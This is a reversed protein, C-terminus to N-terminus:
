KKHEIRVFKADEGAERITKMVYALENQSKVETRETKFKGWRRRAKWVVVADIKTILDYTSIQM